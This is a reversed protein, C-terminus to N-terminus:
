LLSAVIIQSIVNIKKLNFPLNTEGEVHYKFMLLTAILILMIVIFILVFTHITRKRSFNNQKMKETLVNYLKYIICPYIYTKEIEQKAM